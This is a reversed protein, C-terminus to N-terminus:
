AATVTDTHSATGVNETGVHRELSARLGRLHLHGNVRRLQKGAEVM